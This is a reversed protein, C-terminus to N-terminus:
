YDRSALIEQISNLLVKAEDTEASPTHVEIWEALENGYAIGIDRTPIALMENEIIILHGNTYGNSRLLAVIRCFALRIRMQRLIWDETM